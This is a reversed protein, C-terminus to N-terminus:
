QLHNASDVAEGVARLTDLVGEAPVPCVRLPGVLRAASVGDLHFNVDLAVEGAVYRAQGPIGREVTIWGHARAAAEVDSRSIM